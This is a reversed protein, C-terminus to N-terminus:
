VGEISLCGEIFGKMIVKLIDNMTGEDSIM